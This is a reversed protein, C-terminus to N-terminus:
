LPREGIQRAPVGGLIQWEEFSRTVVAGAGVVTHPAVDAGVSAHGGIWVDNGITVRPHEGPRARMPESSREIEYHKLGSMISVYDGAILDDGIDALEVRSYHGLFCHDGIRTDPNSIVSGWEIGLGEGCSKLTAKYWARRFLLGPRGPLMSLLVGVSNYSVLGKRFATILPWLLQQAVQILRPEL